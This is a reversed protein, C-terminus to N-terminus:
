MDYFTAEDVIKSFYRIKDDNPGRRPMPYQIVYMPASQNLVRTRIEKIEQNNDYVYFINKNNEM